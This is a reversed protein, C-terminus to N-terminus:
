GNKKIFSLDEKLNRGSRNYIVVLSFILSLVWGLKEWYLGDKKLLALLLISFFLYVSNAWFLFGIKGSKYFSWSRYKKRWFSFFIWGGIGLVVLSLNEIKLTKTALGLGIFFLFYVITLSFSDFLEWVNKKLKSSLYLLSVVTGWFAGFVSFNVGHSSLWTSSSDFFSINLLIFFLRSLLASVILSILTIGLVEEEKCDDRLKRWISFSSFFVALVFGWFIPTVTLSGITFSLNPM